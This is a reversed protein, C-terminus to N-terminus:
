PEIEKWNKETIPPSSFTWETAHSDHTPKSIDVDYSILPPPKVADEFTEPAPTQRTKRPTNTILKKIEEPIMALRRSKTPKYTKETKSSSAM